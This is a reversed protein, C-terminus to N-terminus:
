VLILKIGKDELFRRWEKSISSGTILTSVDEFGCFFFQTVKGFKSSDALIIREQSNAVFAKKLNREFETVCMFGLHMDIANPVIFSKTACTEAVLSLAEPGEFSETAERFTGGGLMIRGVRKKRAESFINTAFCAITIDMDSKLSHMLQASTTGIDILLIDGSSVLSAAARGIRYKEESMVVSGRVIDYPANKEDLPFSPNYIAAGHIITVAGENQLSRLDRRITMETVHLYESLQKISAGNQNKLIYLIMKLRNQVKDLAM